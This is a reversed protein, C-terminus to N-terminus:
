RPNDQPPVPKFTKQYDGKVVIETGTDPLSGNDVPGSGPLGVIWKRRNIKGPNKMMKM